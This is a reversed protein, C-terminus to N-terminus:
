RSRLKLLVLFVEIEKIKRKLLFFLQKGWTCLNKKKKGKCSFVFFLVLFCFWFTFFLVFLGSCHRVSSVPRM